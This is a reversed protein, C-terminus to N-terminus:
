DRPFWQSLLSNLYNWPMATKFRDRLSTLKSEWLSLTGGLRESSYWCRWTPANSSSYRVVKCNGSCRSGGKEFEGGFLRQKQVGQESGSLVPEQTPCTLSFHESLQCCIAVTALSDLHVQFRFINKSYKLCPLYIHKIVHFLPSPLHLSIMTIPPTQSPDSLGLM